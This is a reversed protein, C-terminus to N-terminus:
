NRQNYKRLSLKKKLNKDRVVGTGFYRLMVHVGLEDPPM